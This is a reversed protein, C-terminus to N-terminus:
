VGITENGSASMRQNMLPLFEPPLTVGNGDRLAAYSPSMIEVGAQNFHKQINQHLSSYIRPLREAKRTFANLEYSVHYDNLSTQLVFPAPNKLINESDLAAAILLEHVKQWPVDYGITVVTHLALGQERALRSYNTVSNGLVLSNPFSVVENKFTRVRTTLLHKGVVEGTSTQIGIIDGLRFSGTYTLIIGAIINAIASSSSLTLLLALFASVGQFVPLQSFPLANFGIIVAIVIMIIAIIRGTLSAWEPEFSPLRIVGREIERFLMRVLRTGLWTLGGLVLLFALDPLFAVFGDWLKALPELLLQGIKIGLDHTQPFAQLIFPLAVTVLLIALIFKFLRMATLMTRGFLGSRYFESESLTRPLRSADAGPNFKDTLWGSVRNVLWNILFLGLLVFITIGVGFALTQASSGAQGEAIAAQILTAWEQALEQRSRGEVMADTESVSILVEEGVLIDTVGQVDLITVSVDSLFPNTAVRSIHDSVLAARETATISGVRSHIRFLERDNVVVPAGEEAAPTAEVTPLPPEEDQFYASAKSAQTLGLVLLCILLASLYHFWNSRMNSPM